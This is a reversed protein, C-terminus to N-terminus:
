IFNAKGLAVQYLATLNVNSLAVQYLSSENEEEWTTSPFFSKLYVTSTSEWKSDLIFNM